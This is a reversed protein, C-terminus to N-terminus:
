LDELVLVSIGITSQPTIWATKNQHKTRSFIELFTLPASPEPVECAGAKALTDAIENGELYKALQVLATNVSRSDSLIWIEKGNPLSELSGLAEDIAILERSVIDDAPYEDLGTCQLLHDDDIRAHGCTPCAENAAVGLWHLYVGLFDHGTTLSFHAVTEARELHRPIPGVTALTEM